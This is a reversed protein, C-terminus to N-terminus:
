NLKQDKYRGYYIYFPFDSLFSISDKGFDWNHKLGRDKCGSISNFSNSRRNLGGSLNMLNPRQNHLGKINWRVSNMTQFILPRYSLIPQLSLPIPFDVNTALAWNWMHDASNGLNITISYIFFPKFSVWSKVRRKYLNM